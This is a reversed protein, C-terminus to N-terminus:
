EVVAGTLALVIAEGGETMVTVTKNFAGVSAANYTATVKGVQGPRVPNQTYDTTTCGCSGKVQTLVIDSTGKNTFEFTVTVPKDKKIKGFDHTTAKWVLQEADQVKTVSTAVQAQASSVSVGVVTLAFLLIIKKKM